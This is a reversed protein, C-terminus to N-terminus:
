AIENDAEDSVATIAARAAAMEAEAEAVAQEAEALAADEILGAAIVADIAEQAAADEILGAVILAQIAEAVAAAKVQEAAEVTAIADLIAAGKVADAVEIAVEADLVAELERGVMMLAEPTLFGQAIPYGGTTRIAQKLRAAWSHEFLLMGVAQGPELGSAIETIDDLTLGYADDVVALAGSEMGEVAGEEGGAGLGILGGIVAGFEIAEEDTLDSGQIAVLDGAEDKKVFQLDIVRILGRATLSDLEDLILGQYEADEDFGIVMMQIPGIHEFDM